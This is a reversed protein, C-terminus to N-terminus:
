ACKAYRCRRRMRLGAIRGDAIDSISGTASRARDEDRRRIHQRGSSRALVAAALKERKGVGFRQARQLHDGLPLGRDDREFADKGGRRAARREDVADFGVRRQLLRLNPHDRGVGVERAEVRM